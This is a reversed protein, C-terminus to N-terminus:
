VRRAYYIYAGAAVVCAVAVRKALRAMYIFFDDTQNPADSPRTVVAQVREMVEDLVAARQITPTTLLTRSRAFLDPPFVVNSPNSHHPTVAMLFGVSYFESATWREFYESSAKSYPALLALYTPQSPLQRLADIVHDMTRYVVILLVGTRDAEDIAQQLGSHRKESVIAKTLDVRFVSPSVQELGDYRLKVQTANEPPASLASFHNNFSPQFLAIEDERIFVANAAEPIMGRFSFSEWLQKVIDDPSKPGEDVVVLSSGSRTSIFQVRPQRLIDEYTEPKEAFVTSLDVQELSLDTGGELREVVHIATSDLYTPVTKALVAWFAASYQSHGNALVITNGVAINAALASLTFRIPNVSDVVVLSVGVPLFRQQPGPSRSAAAELPFASKQIHVYYREVDDLVLVLEREHQKRRSGNESSLSRLLADKETTLLQSLGHLQRLRWAHSCSTTQIKFAAHASRIANATSSASQEKSTM